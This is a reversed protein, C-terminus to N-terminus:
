QTQAADVASGLSAYAAVVLAQVLADRSPFYRAREEAGLAQGDQNGLDTARERVQREGGLHARQAVAVEEDSAPPGVAV